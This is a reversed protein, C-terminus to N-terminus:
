DFKVFKGDRDFRMDTGNDLEVEYGRNDKEVGVIKFGKQNEKVYKEIEPLVFKKPMKTKPAVEVSKWNGQRDFTIESGDTLIVEYEDVRSFKKQVKVLSVKAKFNQSITTQAATPLVSEDHSYGNRALASVSVAIVAFILIFLKRTM